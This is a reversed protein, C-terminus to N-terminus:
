LVCFKKFFKNENVQGGNQLSIKEDLEWFSQSGVKFPKYIDAIMYAFPNTDDTNSLYVLKKYNTGGSGEISNFVRETCLSAYNKESKSYSNSARTFNANAATHTTFISVIANKRLESDIEKDDQLSIFQTVYSHRGNYFLERLTTSEKAWKKLKSACDDLILAVNPNFDIYNICCLEENSLGDMSLLKNRYRKIVTKYLSTLHKDREINMEKIQDYKKAYDMKSNENIKQIFQETSTNIRNCMQGDTHTKVKDFVIKLNALDNATKYIAARGKQVVMFMELWEMTVDSKICNDPIKGYYPSSTVTVSSQCIVFAGALYDKCLYLCEDIITSKGSQTRGYILTTKNLFKKYDKAFWKLRSGDVLLLDKNTPKDM